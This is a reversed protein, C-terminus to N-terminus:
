DMSHMVLNCSDITASALEQVYNQWMDSFKANNKQDDSQCVGSLHLGDGAHLIQAIMPQYYPSIYIM